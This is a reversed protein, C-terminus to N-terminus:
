PCLPVDFTGSVEILWGDDPMSAYHVWGEVRRAQEPGVLTSAGSVWTGM